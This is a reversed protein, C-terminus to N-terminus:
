NLKSANGAQPARLYLAWCTGLTFTKIMEACLSTIWEKLNIMETQVGPKLTDRLFRRTIDCM